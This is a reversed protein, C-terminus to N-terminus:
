EDRPVSRNRKVESRRKKSHFRRQKSATTPKTPLRKKAPRLARRLLLMLKEVAKQRNQWQSRSEQAVVRLIGGDDVKSALKEKILKKQEETLSPSHRVDFLIEVRTELKNVNQGGPGGSRSTRFRLESRPISIRKAIVVDRDV